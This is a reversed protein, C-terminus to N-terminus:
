DRTLVLPACARGGRPVRVCREGGRPMKTGCDDTTSIVRCPTCTGMARRQDKKPVCGKAARQAVQLVLSYQLAQDPKMDATAKGICM